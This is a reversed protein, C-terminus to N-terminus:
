VVVAERKVEGMRRGWDDVAGRFGELETYLVARVGGEGRL